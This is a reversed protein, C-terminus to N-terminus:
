VWLTSIIAGKSRCPWYVDVGPAKTSHFRHTPVLSYLTAQSVRDADNLREKMELEAESSKCEAPRILTDGVM